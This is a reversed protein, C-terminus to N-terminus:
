SKLCGQLPRHLDSTLLIDFVTDEVTKPRNRARRYLELDSLVIHERRRRDQLTRNKEKRLSKELASYVSESIEVDQLVGSSDRFQMFYKPKNGVDELRLTCIDKSDVM